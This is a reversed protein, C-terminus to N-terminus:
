PAMRVGSEECGGTPVPRRPVDLIAEPTLFVSSPGHADVGSRAMVCSKKSVTYSPLGDVQMLLSTVVRKIEVTVHSDGREKAVANFEDFFLAGPNTRAYDIVRKLRNATEGLYSGIM